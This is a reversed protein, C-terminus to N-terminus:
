SLPKDAAMNLQHRLIVHAFTNIYRQGLKKSISNLLTTKQKVMTHRLTLTMTSLSFFSDFPKSIQCTSWTELKEYYM